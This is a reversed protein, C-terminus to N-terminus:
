SCNEQLKVEGEAWDQHGISESVSNGLARELFRRCAHKQRLTQKGPFNSGLFHTFKIQIRIEITYGKQIVGGM